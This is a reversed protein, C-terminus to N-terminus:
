PMGNGNAESRQFDAVQCACNWLPSSAEYQSWSAYDELMLEGKLEDVSKGAKLGDLVGVRLVNMYGLADNLDDKSGVGGHGPAFIEFDITLATEIQGLSELM